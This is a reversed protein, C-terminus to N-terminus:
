IKGDDIRDQTLKKQYEKQMASDERAHAAFYVLGLARRSRDLTRNGGARHITLAHHVLLDGPMAHFAVENATDDPGFDTLGQSFGLTDTRGHPRMGKRNSGTVYCVCGNDEDVEELALWM